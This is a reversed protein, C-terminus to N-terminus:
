LGLFCCRVGIVGCAVALAWFRAVDGSVRGESPLLEDLTGEAAHVKLAPQDGAGAGITIGDRMAELVRGSYAEKVYEQRDAAGYTPEVLV